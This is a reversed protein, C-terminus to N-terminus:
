EVSAMAVPMCLCTLTAGILRPAEEIELTQWFPPGRVADAHVTYGATRWQSLHGATAPLLGPPERSTTELWIVREGKGTAPPPQMEAAELGSAVAPGLRYGAVEVVEGAALERRLADTVGKTAGQQMRGAMKLRLFQQLVLKGSTQPQWLILRRPGSIRASAEAALLCGARLGWLWFEGHHRAQLWAAADTIDALWGEWTADALEGSSDGCGHLDLQLVAYGADSLARSTLAVMRRSKNMEEAFAHVHLV